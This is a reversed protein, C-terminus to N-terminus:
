IAASASISLSAPMEKSTALWPQRHKGLMQKTRWRGLTAFPCTVSLRATDARCRALRGHHAQSAHDTHVILGHKPQCLIIAMQLATCVLEAPMDPAMVWGVVKCSYLDLVAALYLWGRDTRIYTIDATWAQDPTDPNFRRDLLNAAVPLDHRSDTTHAFKRKWRAKGQQKM